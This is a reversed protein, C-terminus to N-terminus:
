RLLVVLLIIFVLFVPIILLVITSLKRQYAEQEQKAKAEAAERRQDIAKFVEMRKESEHAEREKLQSAQSRVQQLKYPQDSGSHRVMIQAVLSLPEGCVSCTEVDYANVHGCAPCVNADGLITIGCYTCTLNGEPTVELGPATCAPCTSQAV